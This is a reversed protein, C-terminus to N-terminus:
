STRSTNRKEAVILTLFTSIPVLGPIVTFIKKTLSSGYLNEAQDVRQELQTVSKDM